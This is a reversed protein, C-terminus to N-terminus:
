TQGAEYLKWEYKSSARHDTRQLLFGFRESIPFLM